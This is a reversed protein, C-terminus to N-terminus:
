RIYGLARLEDELSVEIEDGEDGQGSGMRFVGAVFPGGELAPMKDGFGVVPEDGNLVVPNADPTENGNSTMISDPELLQGDLSIKILVVGADPIISFCIGKRDKVRSFKFVTRAAQTKIEDSSDFWLPLYQPDFANGTIEIFGPTPKGTNNKLIVSYGRHTLFTKEMLIDRAENFFPGKPVLPWRECIDQEINFFEYRRNLFDYILKRDKYNVMKLVPATNRESFLVREETDRKGGNSHPMIYEALSRGQWTEPPTRKLGLLEIITPAADIVFTKDNYVEGAKIRGPFRMLLPVKLLEEYLTHSHWGVYGHENFEEGHDSFIIFLTKDYLGKQALKEQIRSLQGDAYRIEADYLARIHRVDRASIKRKNYNIDYITNMTGDIEGAYEPDFMDSYLETPKYPHHVEYTHLFLFFPANLANRDLWAIALDITDEFDAYLENYIQFGKHFGYANSVQAGSTFGATQYGAQRLIETLSENEDAWEKQVFPDNLGHEAPHLSTFLSVHSSLTYPAHSYFDSFVAGQKGIMDMVPSIKKSNGYVGLGDQRLTDLSVIVLNPIKGKKDGKCIIPHGLALFANREEVDREPNEASKTRFVLEGQGNTMDDLAVTFHHWGFPKNGSKGFESNLLIKEIDRDNKFSVVLQMNEPDSIETDAMFCDFVLESKVMGTTKWSVLSDPPLIMAERTEGESYFYRKTRGPFSWKKQNSSLTVQDFLVEAGADGRSTLIIVLYRCEAGPQLELELRRWLGFAEKEMFQMHTATVKKELDIRSNIDAFCIEEKCELVAPVAEGSKGESLNRVWVSIKFRDGSKECNVGRFFVEAIGSSICTTKLSKEGEYADVESLFADESANDDLKKAKLGGPFEKMKNEPGFGPIYNWKELGQEFSDTWLTLEQKELFSLDKIESKFPVEDLLHVIGTETFELSSRKYALHVILASALGVAAGIILIVRTKHM